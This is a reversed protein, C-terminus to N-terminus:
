RHPKEGDDRKKRNNYWAKVGPFLYFIARKAVSFFWSWIFAIGILCLGTCIGFLTGRIIMDMFQNVVDITM